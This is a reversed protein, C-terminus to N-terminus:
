SNAALAEKLKRTDGWFEMPESDPYPYFGQNLTIYKGSKNMYDEVLSLVTIHKGSGCNSISEVKEQISIRVLHDAMTEVPLHDRQQDGKSM